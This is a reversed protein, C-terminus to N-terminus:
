WKSIQYRASDDDTCGRGIKQPWNKLDDRLNGITHGAPAIVNFSGEIEDEHEAFYNRLTEDAAV